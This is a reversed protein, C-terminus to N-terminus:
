FRNIFPVFRWLKKPLIKRAMKLMCGYNLILVAIFGGGLIVWRLIAGFSNVSITMLALISTNVVIKMVSFDFAIFRRADICRVIFVVIYSAITSIVAAAIGIKPILVINIGVNIIGAILSTILSNVSRKTVVYITGMFTTFCIFVTSFVLGPSYLISSMADAGMWVYTLPRIVLLIGAAIIYLMSQNVDFVNSYFRNREDSDNETIASMNWAQGFMMYITTFLNPIKYAISLIGADARSMFHTVMFSDSSNTILWMIQTPILPICYSLMARALGHDFPDESPKHLPTFFRWLKATIMLFIISAVDALVISLLYGTIGMKLVILFLVSFALTFFTCLIGNVAFLRVREMARVFTAYLTKLSSISVYLLLLWVNNGIFKHVFASDHLFVAALGLLAIGCLIVANGISFIRKKNYSKDLGFRIVAESVTLSVIPLLWNATQTFNETIGLETDTFLRTYLSVLLIALVKSSFSGVAFIITNSLLGKYSNQKKEEMSMGELLLMYDIQM